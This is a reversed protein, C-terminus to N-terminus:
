AACPVTATTLPTGSSNFNPLPFPRKRRAVVEDCPMNLLEKITHLRSLDDESSHELQVFFLCGSRHRRPLVRRPYAAPFDLQQLPTLIEQLNTNGPLERVGTKTPHENALTNCYWTVAPDKSSLSQVYRQTVRFEEVTAPLCRVGIKFPRANPAHGLIKKQLPNGIEFPPQMLQTPPSSILAYTDIGSIRIIDTQPWIHSPAPHQLSDKKKKIAAFIPTHLPTLDRRWAATPLHLRAVTACQHHVNYPVLKSELLSRDTYIHPGLVAFRDLTLSDLEEVSEFGIEVARNKTAYRRTGTTSLTDQGVVKTPETKGLACTTSAAPPGMPSRDTGSSM